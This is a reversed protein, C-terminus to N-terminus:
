KVPFYNRDLCKDNGCTQWGLIYLNLYLYLLLYLYLYLDIVQERLLWGRLGLTWGLLRLQQERLRPTGRLGLGRQLGRGRLKQRHTFINVWFSGPLAPWPGQGANGPLKQTFMKVWLCFYVCICVCVCFSICVCIFICICLTPAQKNNEWLLSRRRPVETAPYGIREPQCFDSLILNQYNVNVTWCNTLWISRSTPMIPVNSLQCKVNSM